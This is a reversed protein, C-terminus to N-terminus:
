GFRRRIEELRQKVFEEESIDAPMTEEPVPEPARPPEPPPLAEEREPREERRRPRPGGRDRRPGGRESRERREGTRPGARGSKMSLSIRGTEADVGLVRVRVVQGVRAVSSADRVFHDALESVHVLGDQAV